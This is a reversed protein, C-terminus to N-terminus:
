NLGLSVTLVMQPIQPGTWSCLDLQNLTGLRNKAEKSNKKKKKITYIDGRGEGLVSQKSTSDPSNEFKNQLQFHNQM